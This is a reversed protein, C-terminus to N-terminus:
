AKRMAPMIWKRHGMFRGIMNISWRPHKANHRPSVSHQTDKGNWFMVFNNSEYPCSKVIPGPSEYVRHSNMALSEAKHICFDGGTSKDGPYKLYLLGAYIEKENDTHPTRNSIDNIPPHKVFSFDTYCNSRSGSNPDYRDQLEIKDSPIKLKKSWPEFVNLVKDFFERSLHHAMFEQWIHSIPQKEAIIDRAQWTLKNHHDRPEQNNLREDPLTNILEDHIEEPLANKIVIHPWPDHSVEKFNQLVCLKTV